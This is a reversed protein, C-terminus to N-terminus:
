EVVKKDLNNILEEAREATIKYETNSVKTTEKVKEDVVFKTGVGYIINTYKDKFNVVATLTKATEVVETTEETTTEEVNKTKKAM